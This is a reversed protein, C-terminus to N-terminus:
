HKINEELLRRFFDVGDLEKLLRKQITHVNIKDTYILFFSRTEKFILVERWAKSFQGSGNDWHM